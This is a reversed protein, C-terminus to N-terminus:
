IYRRVKKKYEIYENGFRQELFKEEGIYNIVKRIGILVQDLTLTKDTMQLCIKM